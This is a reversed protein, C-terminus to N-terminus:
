NNAYADRKGGANLRNEMTVLEWRCTVIRRSFDGSTLSASDFLVFYCCYFHYFHKIYCWWRFGDGDRGNIIRHLM